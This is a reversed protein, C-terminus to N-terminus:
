VPSGILRCVVLILTSGITVYTLLESVAPGRICDREEDVKELEDVLFQPLPLNKYKSPGVRVLSESCVPRSLLRTSAEVVDAADRRKWLQWVIFVVAAVAVIIVFFVQYCSLPSDLEKFLLWAAAGLYLVTSEYAMREKHHHYEGYYDRYSIVLEKRKESMEKRNQM